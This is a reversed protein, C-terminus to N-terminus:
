GNSKTKKNQIATISHTLKASIIRDTLKPDRAAHSYTSLVLSPTKWGGLEAVTRVDIGARLMATAFGHRCSHPSLPKIGARRIVAAWSPKATSRSAYKFVTGEREGTINSLAVILPAPLHAERM